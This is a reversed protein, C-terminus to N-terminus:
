NRFVEVIAVGSTGGVGTVIATYAGSQRTNKARIHRGEMGMRYAPDRAGLTESVVGQAVPDLTALDTHEPSPAALAPLALLCALQAALRRATTTVPASM